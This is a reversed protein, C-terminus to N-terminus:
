YAVSLGDIVPMVGIVPYAEALDVPLHYDTGFIVALCEKNETFGGTFTYIANNALESKNEANIRSDIYGDIFPKQPSDAIVGTSEDWEFVLPLMFPKKPTLSYQM